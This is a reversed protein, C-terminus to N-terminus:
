GAAGKLCRSLADGLNPAFKALIGFHDGPVVQVELEEIFKSWAAVPDDAFETSIAAKLFQVKGRYARPRYRLLADNARDSVLQVTPALSKGFQPRAPAGGTKLALAGRDRALKAFAYRKIRREFVGVKQGVPLYNFHPYSDVMVLLGPSERGELLHRMVELAVLGGLSYGVLIYPGQPQIRRIANLYFKAMDEVSDLPEDLGDMGRTQLGHIPRRSDIHKMLQFFEMVTGGSGHAFFVPPGESGARLQVVTELRPMKEQEIIAALKAITPAQYITLPSLERGSVRAVEAFLASASVPDGGLEFFNDDM